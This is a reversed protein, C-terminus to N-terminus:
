AIRSFVHVLKLHIRQRPSVLKNYLKCIITIQKSIRVRFDSFRTTWEANPPTEDESDSSSSDDSLDPIDIDSEYDVQSFGEFDSGDSDSELIQQIINAM